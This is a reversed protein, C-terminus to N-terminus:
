KRRNTRVKVQRAVPPETFCKEAVRRQSAAPLATFVDAFKEPSVARRLAARYDDATEPTISSPPADFLSKGIVSSASRLCAVCPEQPRFRWFTVRGSPLTMAQEFAKWRLDAHWQLVDLIADFIEAPWTGKGHLWQIRDIIPEGPQPDLNSIIRVFSGDTFVVKRFTQPKDSPFTM